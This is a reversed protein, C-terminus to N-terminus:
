DNISWMSRYIKADQEDKPSSRLTLGVQNYVEVQYKEIKVYRGIYMSLSKAYTSPAKM